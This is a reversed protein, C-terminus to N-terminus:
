KNISCSKRHVKWAERQCEKSCYSVAQCRSCLKFQMGRKMCSKNACTTLFLPKNPLDLEGRAIRRDVKRSEKSPKVVRASEVTCVDELGIGMLHSRFIQVDAHDFAETLARKSSKHTRFERKLFRKTPQCKAAYLRLFCNGHSAFGAQFLLACLISLLRGAAHDNYKEHLQDYMIILNEFTNFTRGEQLKWDDGREICHLATIYQMEANAFDGGRKYALGCNSHLWPARTAGSFFTEALERYLKAAPLFAGTAELAEGVKQAWKFQQKRGNEGLLCALDATVISLDLVEKWWKKKRYQIDLREAIGDVLKFKLRNGEFRLFLHLVRYVLAYRQEETTRAAFHQNFMSADVLLASRNITNGTEASKHIPYFKLFMLRGRFQITDVDGCKHQRGLLCAVFTNDSAVTWELDFDGHYIRSYALEIKPNKFQSIEGHKALPHLPADRTLSAFTGAEAFHFAQADEKWFVVPERHPSVHSVTFIDPVIGRMKGGLGTWMSHLNASSEEAFGCDDHTTRLLKQFNRIRAEGNKVPVYHSTGVWFSIEHQLAKACQGKNMMLDLAGQRNTPVAFHFISFDNGTTLLQITQVFNGVKLNLEAVDAITHLAALDTRTNNEDLKMARETWVLQGETHGLREHYRAISNYLSALWCTYEIDFFEESFSEAAIHASSFQDNSPGYHEWIWIWMKQFCGNRRRHQVVYIMVKLAGESLKGLVPLFALCNWLLLPLEMLTNCLRNLDESEKLVRSSLSDLYQLLPPNTPIDFIQRDMSLDSYMGVRSALSSLLQLNDARKAELGDMDIIGNDPTWDKITPLISEMKPKAPELWEFSILSALDVNPKGRLAGGSDIDLRCIERNIEVVQRLFKKGITAAKDRSIEVQYRHKHKRQICTVIGEVDPNESGQIQVLDGDVLASDAEKDELKVTIFLSSSVSDDKDSFVEELAQVTGFQWASTHSPLFKLRRGAWIDLNRKKNSSEDTSTLRPLGDPFVQKLYQNFQYGCEAKFATQDDHTTM